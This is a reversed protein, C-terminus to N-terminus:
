VLDGQRASEVARVLDGHSLYEAVGILDRLAVLDDDGLRDILLGIAAKRAEAKRRAEEAWKIKDTELQEALRQKRTAAAARAAPSKKARAKEEEKARYAAKRASTIEDEVDAAAIAEGGEIRAIISERVGDPTSPAALRYITRVPLVSVTESVGVRESVAMYNRATRDTWGFEAELWKGFHGHGLTKKVGILVEGIVVINQLTFACVRRIQETAKRVAKAQTRTLLSYDFGDPLRSVLAAVDSKPQQEGVLSVAGGGGQAPRREEKDTM